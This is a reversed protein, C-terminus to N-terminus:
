LSIRHKTLRSGRDIEEQISNKKKEFTRQRERLSDFAMHIGEAVSKSFRKDAELVKQVSSIFDQDM